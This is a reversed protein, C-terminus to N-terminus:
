QLRLRSRRRLIRRQRFTQQRRAHSRHSPPRKEPKIFGDLGGWYLIPAKIESFRDVLNVKYFPHPAIGGGYYSIACALPAVMSSLCAVRGGMCFGISAIPLQAGGSQKIWDFTAKIDATFGDDTIAQAHTRGPNMDTYGSEFGSDPAIFCNPRSRSTAKAPSASPSM